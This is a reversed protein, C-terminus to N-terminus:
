LDGFRTQLVGIITAPMHAARIIRPGLGTILFGAAGARTLEDPTFGGEPGIAVAIHAPALNIELLHTSGSADAMIKLDVDIRDLWPELSEIPNLRPPRNLGCQECASNIIHQWHGERKDQAQRPVTTHASVLPYIDTVGLETAMQIASDMADRKTMCLGLSIRLPSARDETIFDDLAIIMKARGIEIVQGKFEGGLGNFLTLPTGVSLRLVHKLYHCTPGELAVQTGTALPQAVFVRSQRM